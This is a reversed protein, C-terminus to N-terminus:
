CAAVWNRRRRQGQGRGGLGVGRGLHRAAGRGADAPERGLVSEFNDLIVLSPREALLKGIAAVPDGEGLIFDPDGSVAQGVWSCLQQLSGGHEFSVFAAGGPFRGTRHFWRGAEAALATKGLGGFGHLVVIRHEAFARELKLMERARGHFGHRPEGPLGGPVGPDTLARPWAVPEGAEVGDAKFVVPDAAQQYLAPLFWDRLRM